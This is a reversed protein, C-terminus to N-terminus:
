PKSRAPQAADLFEIRTVHKLPVAIKGLQAHQLTLSSADMAKIEGHLRSGDNMMVSNRQQQVGNQVSSAFFVTDLYNVPIVMNKPIGPYEKSTSLTLVKSKENYDNVTCPIADEETTLVMDMTNLGGTTLPHVQLALASLQLRSMTLSVSGEMQLGFADGALPATTQFPDTILKPPLDGVLLEYVQENNGRRSSTLRIDLNDTMKPMPIPVEALVSIGSKQERLLLCRGPVINLMLRSAGSGSNSRFSVNDKGGFCFLLGARDNSGDMNLTVRFTFSSPDLGINKYLPVWTPYTNNILKYQYKGNELKPKLASLLKKGSQARYDEDNKSTLWSSDFVLPEQWFGRSQQSALRFGAVQNRPISRQHGFMDLYQVKDATVAKITCPIIDQSGSAIFLKDRPPTDQDETNAFYVARIASPLITIDRTSAAHKLVMGQPGYSVMAGHLRYNDNLVVDATPAAWAHPACATLLLLPLCVKNKM